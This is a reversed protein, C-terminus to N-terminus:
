DPRGLTVKMEDALKWAKAQRSNVQSLSEIVEDIGASGGAIQRQLHDFAARPLVFQVQPTVLDGTQQCGGLDIIRKHAFFICSRPDM